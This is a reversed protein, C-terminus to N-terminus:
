IKTYYVIFRNPMGYLFEIRMFSIVAILGMWGSVGEAARM